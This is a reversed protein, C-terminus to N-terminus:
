AGGIVYFSMPTLYLDMHFSVHQVCYPVMSAASLLHLNNLCHPTSTSAPRIVCVYEDDGSYPLDGALITDLKTRNPIGRKRNSPSHEESDSGSVANIDEESKSKCRRRRQLRSCRMFGAVPFGTADHYYVEKVFTVSQSSSPNNETSIEKLSEMLIDVSESTLIQRVNTIDEEPDDAASRILSQMRDPIHTVQGNPTFSFIFEAQSDLIDAM